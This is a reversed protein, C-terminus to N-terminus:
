IWAWHRQSMVVQITNNGANLVSSPFSIEATYWTRGDWYVEGGVQTGNLFIRVHHDPNIANSLGGLMRVKMTANITTSKNPKTLSFTYSWSPRSPAYIYDWLWRELNEDGPATSQYTTSGEM